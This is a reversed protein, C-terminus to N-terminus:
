INTLLILNNMKLNYCIDQLQESNQCKTLEILYSKNDTKFTENDILSLSKTRIYSVRSLDIFNRLITYGNSNLEDIKKSISEDINNFKSMSFNLKRGNMKKLTKRVLFEFIVKINTFFLILRM